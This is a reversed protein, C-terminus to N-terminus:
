TCVRFSHESSIGQIETANTVWSGYMAASLRTAATMMEWIYKRNCCVQVARDNEILHKWSTGEQPKHLNRNLIEFLRENRTKLLRPKSPNEALFQLLSLTNGGSAESSKGLEKLMDIRDPNSETDTAEKSHPTLVQWSRLLLSAM